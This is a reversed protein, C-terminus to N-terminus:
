VQSVSYINLKWSLLVIAACERDIIKYKFLEFFFYGLKKKKPPPPPLLKM